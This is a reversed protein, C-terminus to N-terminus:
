LTKLFDEVTKNFAEPKEAFVFHTGGPIIVAKAGPIKDAVFHSYKPPTMEDDSGCVALTPLKFEKERGMVDFKDCAKMDNLMVAPGNEVARHRLIKSLEPDILEYTPKTFKTFLDPDDIAKELTHLFMPHVRLRLGSGVLIMGKLTGPYQLAYSLVIGGGLSHGALVVDKYGQQTIYGNLWQTYGDITSFPEGDPHGPLDIAESNPFYETQHQWSEKSGGSGHIFILHM